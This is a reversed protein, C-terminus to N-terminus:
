QTRNFIPLDGLAKEEGCQILWAGEAQRRPIYELGRIVETSRRQVKELLEV